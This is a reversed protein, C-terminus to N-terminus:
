RARGAPRHDLGASADIGQGARSGIYARERLSALWAPGLEWGVPPHLVPDFAPRDLGSRASVEVTGVQVDGDRGVVRLGLRVPLRGVLVDPDPSGLRDDLVELVVQLREDDPSRWYMLSTLRAGAWRRRPRLVFRRWGTTGPATSCLVDVPPEHLLRVALGLLDPVGRPTGIGKSLRVLCDVEGAPLPGPGRVEARGEYLVGDPHFAPASRLAALARFADRYLPMGRLYGGRRGRM